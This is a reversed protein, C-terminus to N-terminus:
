ILDKITEIFIENDKHKKVAARIFSNDLGKFDDCTRVYIGRKILKQKLSPAGNLRMLYFNVNSKYLKINDMPRISSNIYDLEDKLWKLTQTKRANGSELLLPVIGSAISNVTWPEKYEYLKEMLKKNSVAFGLRLGPISYFKTMSHLVFVPYEEVLCAASKGDTFDIFSEDIFMKINNNGCKDLLPKLSQYGTFNGVPNGPNCIVLVDPKHTDVAKILRETDIKFGDAETNIYDSIRSGAKIFAREYETYCPNVIMVTDPKLARAFLYILETAGNGVIVQGGSLGLQEEIYLVTSNAAIEPYKDINELLDAMKSKIKLNLGIPNINISFDLMNEGGWYGGHFNM